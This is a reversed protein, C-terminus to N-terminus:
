AKLVCGPIVFAGGGGRESCNRAAKLGKGYITLVQPYDARRGNQVSFYNLCNAAM